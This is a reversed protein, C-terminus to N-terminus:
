GLKQLPPSCIAPAELLAPIPDHLSHLRGPGEM